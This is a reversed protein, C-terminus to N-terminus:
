YACAASVVTIQNQATTIHLQLFRAGPRIGNCWFGVVGSNINWGWAAYAPNTAYYHTVKRNLTGWSYARGKYCTSVAWTGNTATREAAGWGGGCLYDVMAPNYPFYDGGHKSASVAGAASANSAAMLCAAMVIVFALLGRMSYLTHRLGTYPSPADM